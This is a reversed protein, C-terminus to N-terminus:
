ELKIPKSAEAIIKGFRPDNRLEDWVPNLKLEGAGFGEAGPLLAAPIAPRKAVEALQQLAAEREGAWLYVIALIAEIDAVMGRDRKWRAITDRAERIADDKRGLAADIEAIYAQAHSEFWARLPNNAPNTALWEEFSRRAAEFYGRAKENEGEFRAIRGLRELNVGRRHLENGDDTIANNPKATEDVSTLIKEANTYDRELVFVYARAQNLGWLGLNRSPSQDLAAMAAQADGKALAIGCKHRWFFGTSQHSTTAIMHDVLREADGYRRLEVYLLVLENATAGDRPDLEAAKEADRLAEKWKGSQRELDARLQFVDVRGPLAAAAIAVEKEATTFAASNEEASGHNGLLIFYRALRLHPEPSSPSVRSATDIAQKVKDLRAKDWRGTAAIGLEADALVCYALVFKPDRTIAAELLPIAKTADEQQSKGTGGFQYV